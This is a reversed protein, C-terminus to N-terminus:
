TGMQFFRFRSRSPTRLFVYRVFPREDFKYHAAYVDTEHLKEGDFDRAPPRGPMRLRLAATGLHDAVQARTVPADDALTGYNCCFQWPVLPEIRLREAAQIRSYPVYMMIIGSVFRMAMLLGVAIGLYRHLIVMARWLIGAM